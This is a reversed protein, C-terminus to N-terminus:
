RINGINFIIVDTAANSSIPMYGTYVIYKDLTFIIYMDLMDEFFGKFGFFWKKRERSRQMPPQFRMVNVIYLSRRFSSRGLM